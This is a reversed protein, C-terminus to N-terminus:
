YGISYLTYTQNLIRQISWDRNTFSYDAPDYIKVNNGSYESLIIFHGSSTFDGPGVYAVLLRGANLQSKVNAVSRTTIYSSLGFMRPASTFMYSYSTFGTTWGNAVSIETMDKVDLSKDGTFYSYIMTLVAPGCGVNAIYDSYKGNMNEFGWREDFQVIYPVKVKRSTKLANQYDYDLNTETSYGKYDRFKVYTNKALPNSAVGNKLYNHLTIIRENIQSNTLTTTANPDVLTVTLKRGDIVSPVNGDVTYLYKTNKFNNSVTAVVTRANVYGNGYKVWDSNSFKNIYTGSPITGIIKSSLSADSRLNLSM